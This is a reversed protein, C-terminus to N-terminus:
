EGKNLVFYFRYKGRSKTVEYRKIKCLSTKDLLPNTIVLDETVVYGKSYFYENIKDEIGKLTDSSALCQKKTKM